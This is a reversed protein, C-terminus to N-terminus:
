FRNVCRVYLDDGAAAESVCELLDLFGTLTAEGYAAVQHVLCIHIHKDICSKCLEAADIYELEVGTGKAMSIFHQYGDVHDQSCALRISGTGHQYNIPYDPDDALEKYLSISHSKLLIMTQTGGFNTVQAASHWTTGSTLEDREVLVCDAIGEQTLHYLASCGGIGGGIVVVHTHTKM